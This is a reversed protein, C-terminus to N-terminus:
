SLVVHVERDVLGHMVVNLSATGSMPRVVYTAQVVRASDCGDALMERVSAMMEDAMVSQVHMHEAGGVPPRGTKTRTLVHDHGAPPEGMDAASAIVCGSAYTVGHQALKRLLQRTQPLAKRYLDALCITMEFGKKRVVAYGSGVPVTGAM